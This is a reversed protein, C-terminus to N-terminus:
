AEGTVSEDFKVTDLIALAEDWMEDTWSACDTHQAVIQPGDNKFVIFDWHSHNDYTGVNATYGALTMKEESLGTGCVGFNEICFLEIQGSRAEEPKLILGYLGYMMKDSGAPAAEVTWNDPIYVSIQGYPGGASATDMGPMGGGYVTYPEDTIVPMKLQAVAKGYDKSVEIIIHWEAMDDTGVEPVIRRVEPQIDYKMGDEQSIGVHLGSVKHRISGSGEEILVFILDNKEFFAADYQKVADLFGKTEDSYPYERHELDYKDKSAEYYTKLEDASTIWFIKPYEEGDAYGNTRIYQVRYDIETDQSERTNERTDSVTDPVTDSVTDPATDPATDPVTDSVTNEFEASETEPQMDKSEQMKGKLCGGASLMCVACLLWIWIKKM